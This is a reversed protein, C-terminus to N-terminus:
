SERLEAYEPHRDIYEAVYWCTPVVTRGQTRVDDLAAGVLQAALGRGRLSPDIVTHPMVIRTGEVVYDAHGAHVGDVTLDYRGADENRHVEIEM